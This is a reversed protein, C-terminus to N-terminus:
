GVTGMSRIEIAEEIKPLAEAFRRNLLFAQALMSLVESREIRRQPALQRAVAVAADCKAIASQPASELSRRCEFEATQYTQSAQKQEATEPGLIKQIEDALTQGFVNSCLLLALILGTSRQFYSNPFM